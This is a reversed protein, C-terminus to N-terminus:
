IIYMLELEIAKYSTLQNYRVMQSEQGQRKWVFIKLFDLKALIYDQRHTRMKAGSGSAALRLYRTYQTRLSKMYKIVEEVSLLM